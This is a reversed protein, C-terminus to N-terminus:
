RLRSPQLDTYDRNAANQIIKLLYSQAPVLLLIKPTKWVFGLVQPQKKMMKGVMNRWNIINSLPSKAGKQLYNKWVFAKKGFEESCSDFYHNL